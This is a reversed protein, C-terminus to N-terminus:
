SLVTTAGSCGASFSPSSGVAPNNWEPTEQALASSATAALLAAALVIRTRNM